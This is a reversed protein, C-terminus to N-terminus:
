AALMMGVDSVRTYWGATHEHWAMGRAECWQRENLSGAQRTSMGRAM